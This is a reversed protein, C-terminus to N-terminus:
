TLDIYKKVTRRDLDLRRAVEEYSGFQEYMQRCYRSMLENATLKGERLLGDIGNKPSSPEGTYVGCIIIRRIAQELERVNGPWAYHDPLSKKLSDLVRQPLEGSGLGTIRTCLIHVLEPLADPWEQIRQRLTPVTITDTCLRFYFDDRFSGEARREQLPQHTAAIVRGQFPLCDRSGVPSFTREQLVQLLKIQIPISVDGIEDLFIAGYPRCRSLAGTHHEIAGTFAGKRHGFLESEILSEPYQSLNLSVFNGTFSEKFCGDGDDFPIFGSLGIARAASGKGTGTEGLLLISFDEMRDWLHQEYFNINDTFLTRWLQSRFERMCPSSGSLSQAIFAYARRLQFFMTFARVAEPHGFGRGILDQIMKRAFPVPLSRDPADIQKPILADFSELCNLYVEFLHGNRILETDGSRYETYIWGKKSLSQMFEHIRSEVMDRQKEPADPLPTRQIIDIFAAARKESFPNSFVAAEVQQLFVQETTTLKKVSTAM